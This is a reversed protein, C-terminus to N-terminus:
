KTVERYLRAVDDRDLKPRGAELSDLTAEALRRPLECFAVIGPKVGAGELTTVYRKASVLDRRALAFVEGRAVSPPLYQRGEVLDAPADKLINVLQLGEGFAAAHEALRTAVRAAGADYIAFLNTLLEGVIGAVVYAYRRLDELDALVLEGRADQRAVFDLMGRTTREAGRRIAAAPAPGLREVSALVSEVRDLLELCGADDTPTDSRTWALEVDVDIDGELRALLASLADARRERGWRPADELTDAIRFVLYALGVAEAIPPELLPIALAFTRSTRGLLSELETRQLPPARM